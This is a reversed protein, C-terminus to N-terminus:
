TRKLTEELILRLSAEIPLSPVFGAIARLKRTSGYHVPIDVTKVLATKVRVEIDVGAFGTLTTLMDRILTGAGSCINVIQGYAEPRGLVERFARVAERVDVFDRSNSLNGVEIVPPIVGKMIAAIQGAFSQVVLHDPMGPGILNFPRVIAVPRGSMASALGELTQALKSIGYHNYPRPHMDETIPVDQETVLGYEASTGVLLAPCSGFGAEALAGLLALAFVVNVRYFEAPDNSRMLGAMHYVQDPQAAKVAGSLVKVDTIDSVRYHRPRDLGRVGVTHVEVGQEELHSILHRGSFGGGGTVLARM